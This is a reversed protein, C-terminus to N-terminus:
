IKEVIDKSIGTFRSIQRISLGKEKLKKIKVDRTIIDMKQFERANKCKSVKLIISKAQEDALRSNNKIFVIILIISILLPLILILLNQATLSLVKEIFMSNYFLLFMLFAIISCILYVKNGKIMFLRNKGKLLFSKGIQIVANQRILIFRIPIIM